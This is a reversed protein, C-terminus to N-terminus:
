PYNLIYTVYQYIRCIRLVIFTNMTKPLSSKKHNRITHKVSENKGFVLMCMLEKTPSYKVLNAGPLDSARNKVEM